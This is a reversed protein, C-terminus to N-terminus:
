NCDQKKVNSTEFIVASKSSDLLLPKTLSANTNRLVINKGQFKRSNTFEDRFWWKQNLTKIDSFFLNEVVGSLQSFVIQTPILSIENDVCIDVFASNRIETGVDGFFINQIHSFGKGRIHYGILNDFNGYLQILDSHIQPKINGNFNSVEANIIIQANTLADGTINDIVINRALKSEVFGHTMDRATSNTVYYGGIYKASRVPPLVPKHEFAKGYSDFWIVNDFWVYENNEPYIQSIKGFDISLNSFKIKDLFLRLLQRNKMELIIDSSKLSSDGEIITWTDTGTKGIRVDDIIYHGPTMIIVKEGPLVKTLAYSISKFPHLKSGDNSYDNGDLSVYLSDLGNLKQSINVILPKLERTVGSVPYVKATLILKGPKFNSPDVDTFYEIVKTSSNLKKENTTTLLLGNAYFEVRQIGSPHFAVIGINTTDSLNQFPVFDWNAVAIMESYDSKAFCVNHSIIILLFLLLKRFRM